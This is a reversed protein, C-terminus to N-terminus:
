AEENDHKVVYLREKDDKYIGAEGHTIPFSFPQHDDPMYLQVSWENVLECEMVKDAILMSMCVESYPMRTTFREGVKVYQKCMDSM